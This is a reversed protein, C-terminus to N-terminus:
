LRHGTRENIATNLQDVNGLIDNLEKKTWGTDLLYQIREEEFRYKLIKAPIGGVIAYPPVDKTVVSNAAVIAGQGITVGDLIIARAGIWVDDQIEIPKYEEFDLDETILKLNFTNNIRYFLPSTTFYDTPHTGLGIFVDNAISCFSGITTNQVISRKGIYTYKKITSNNITCSELIHCDREISSREDITTNRDIAAGRFRYKNQIDRAGALSLLFLNRCLGAPLLLIRLWIKKNM